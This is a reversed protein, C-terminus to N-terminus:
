VVADIALFRITNVSKEVLADDTKQAIEVAATARVSVQKGRRANRAPMAADSSVGKASIRLGTFKSIGLGQVSAVLREVQSAGRVAAPAVAGAVAAVNCRAAAM